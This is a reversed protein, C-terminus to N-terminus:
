GVRVFYNKQGIWIRRLLSRLSLNRLQSYKGFLLLCTLIISALFLSSLQLASICLSSLTESSMCLSSVHHSSL